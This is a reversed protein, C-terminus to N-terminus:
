GMQHFRAGNFTRRKGVSDLGSRRRAQNCGVLRWDDPLHLCAIQCYPANYVAMSGHQLGVSAHMMCAMPKGEIKAYGHAIAVSAEEHLACITRLYPRTLMGYNVVAEHMGMFSNGPVAAFYEIGLRRLVDVM